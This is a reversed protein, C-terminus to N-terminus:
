QANTDSGPFLEDGRRGKGERPYAYGEGAEYTGLDLSTETTTGATWGATKLNFALPETTCGSDYGPEFSTSYYSSDAAYLGFATAVAAIMTMLKKM